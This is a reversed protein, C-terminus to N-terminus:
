EENFAFFVRGDFRVDISKLNESKRSFSKKFEEHGLTIRTNDLVREYNMDNSYVIFPFNQKYIIGNVSWLYVYVDDHIDREIRQIHLDYDGQLTELFEFFSDFDHSDHIQKEKIIDGPPVFVKTFVKSSFYPSDAYIYGDQDAYYCEEDTVQEYERDNCWLSHAKREEIEIQLVDGREVISVDIAYIRPFIKSIHKELSKTDLFFTNQRPFVWFKKAALYDDVVVMLEKETLVEHGSIRTTDMFFYEQNMAYVFGGLLGLLLTIKVILVIRRKSFKHQKKASRKKKM